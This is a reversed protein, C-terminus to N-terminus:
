VAHKGIRITDEFHETVQAEMTPVFANDTINNM